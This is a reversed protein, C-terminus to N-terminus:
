SFSEQFCQPFPLFNQYAANEWKGVSNEVGDSGFEMIQSM